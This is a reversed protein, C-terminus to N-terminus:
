SDEVADFSRLEDETEQEQIERIRRKVSGSEKKPVFSSKRKKINRREFKNTPHKVM